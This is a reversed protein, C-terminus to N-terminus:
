GVGDDHQHTPSGAAKGAQWAVIDLARLNTVPVPGAALAAVSTLWDHERHLDEIMAGALLIMLQQWTRHRVRPVPADDSGVYCHWINPDYLPIFAPRKRQMVKSLTVGGVRPLGGDVLTFLEGLLGL